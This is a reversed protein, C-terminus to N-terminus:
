VATRLIAERLGAAHKCASFRIAAQERAIQADDAHRRAEHVTKVTALLPGRHAEAILADIAARYGASSTALGTLQSSDDKLRAKVAADAVIEAEAMDLVEQLEKAQRKTAIDAAINVALDDAAREMVELIDVCDGIFENLWSSLVPVQDTQNM